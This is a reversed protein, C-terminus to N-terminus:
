FEGARRVDPEIGTAFTWATAAPIRLRARAYRTEELVPCNGDDDIQSEDGEEAEGTLRDRKSVACYADEADTIPRLGNIDIRYGKDIAQESTHLEAERASGSFFGLEHNTTIVSVNPLSATSVSDLSFPLEDLSGGVYGGSTYVGAMASGQLDIHTGDVVTIAWTANAATVGGVSSVTKVDGTTLAATSSVTLRILGSGNDAAGTIALAGPAVQDLNELTLGPRVIPALYEGGIEVPSWREITTQYILGLDLTTDSNQNSCYGWIIIGRAPDAAGIVLQPSADNYALSRVDAPATDAHQGLFTRDVREEGIPICGGNADAKQFGKVSLYYANGAVVVLSNPALIGPCAPLRDIQFVFDSGAAFVMRRVGGAQFILGVDGSVEAVCYARGNDPLDQYDSNATGDWTTIGNIDSWHVRFPNDLLDCAVLTRGVVAVWGAQPPTGGLADFETDATLDYKQMVVNRHTAIVINNFQAFVWNADSDLSSYPGGSLSVVSWDLTANNLLYLQTATGAFIQATGDETRAVFYGRCAAPLASTFAENAKFPGYGDSRPVVNRLLRTYGARLDSVDPRWEGFPALAM